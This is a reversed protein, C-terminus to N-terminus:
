NDQNSHDSKVVPDGRRDAAVWKIVPLGEVEHGDIDVITYQGNAKLIFVHGSGEEFTLYRCPLMMGDFDVEGLNSITNGHIDKLLGTGTGPDDPDSDVLALIRDGGLISLYDYDGPILVEGKTNMLGCRPGVFVLLDGYGELLKFGASLVEEGKSNILGHVLDDEDNKKLYNILQNPLIAGISNCFGLPSISYDSDKVRALEKGEHNMIIHTTKEFQWQDLYDKDSAPNAVILGHGYDIHSYDPPLIVEGDPSLLGFLGNSTDCILYGANSVMVHEVEQGNIQDLTKLVQGDRDIICVYDGKPTVVAKGNIFKNVCVYPQDSIRRPSSEAAYLYLYGDEDNVFFRGEYVCNPCQDFVESCLVEGSPSILGWKGDEETVFGVYDVVNVKEEYSSNEEYSSSNGCATLITALFAVAMWQKNVKQM